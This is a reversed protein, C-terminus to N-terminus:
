VKENGGTKQTSQPIIEVRSAGLVNKLEKIATDMMAQPDTNNRIKGTIESVLREREARQTTEEFLRANEASLAVREAVAKILDQEDENWKGRNPSHVVLNGIVEGRLEIPVVVQGTESRDSNKKGKSQGALDVREKLPAAGMTNYRYGLLNQQKSIGKWADRTSQRMVMQLESLTKNSSEFLRANEIALSIQDSLLSLTQIDEESFAGSETSQVDLAGIIKEGTKLPLAMESHTEPLDPNNFYTADEGVDLAIRAEGSGTVRGVIGEEGVKLRHQRELMRNGGESNSATLVAYENADDLLFIGVHYFGYRQSVVNTVLPLLEQPDRISSISQAVQALAEFQSSRRQIQSVAGQLELSRTELEVTRERVQQELSGQLEILEQNTEIQAKENDEAKQIASNLRGVLLNIIGSSTAILIAGILVDDVGHRSNLIVETSGDLATVGLFVIGAVALPM